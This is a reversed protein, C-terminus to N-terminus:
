HGRPGTWESTMQPLNNLSSVINVLLPKLRSYSYFECRPRSLRASVLPGARAQVFDKANRSSPQWGIWKRKRHNPHGILEAALIRNTKPVAGLWTEIGGGLDSDGSPLLRIFSVPFHILTFVAKQVIYVSPTRTWAHWAATHISNVKLWKPTIVVWADQNARTPLPVRTPWRM